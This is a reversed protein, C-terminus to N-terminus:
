EDNNEEQLSRWLAKIIISSCDDPSLEYRFERNDVFGPQFLYDDPQSEKQQTGSLESVLHPCSGDNLGINNRIWMGVGFHNYRAAKDASENKRISELILPDILAKCWQVAEKLNCPKAKINNM